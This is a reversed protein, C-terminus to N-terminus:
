IHFADVCLLHGTTVLGTSLHVSLHVSPSPLHFPWAILQLGVFVRVAQGGGWTVVM